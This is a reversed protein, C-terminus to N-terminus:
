STGQRRTQHWALLAAMAGFAIASFIAITPTANLVFRNLVFAFVAAGATHLGIYRLSAATM